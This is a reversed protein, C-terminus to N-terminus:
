YTKICISASNDFQSAPEVATTDRIVSLDKYIALQPSELAIM